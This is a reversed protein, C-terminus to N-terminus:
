ANKTGGKLRQFLLYTQLHVGEITATSPTYAIIDM